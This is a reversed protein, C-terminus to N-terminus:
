IYETHEVEYPPLRSVTGVQQSCWTLLPVDSKRSAVYNISHDDGRDRMRGNWIRLQSAVLGLAGLRPVSPELWVLTLVFPFPRTLFETM